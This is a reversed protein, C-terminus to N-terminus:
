RSNQRVDKPLLEHTMEAPSRKSPQATHLNAGFRILYVQVIRERQRVFVCQGLVHEAAGAHLRGTGVHLCTGACCNSSSGEVNQDDHLTQM